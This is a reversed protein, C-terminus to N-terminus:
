WVERCDSEELPLKKVLIKWSVMEWALGWESANHFLFYMELPPLSVSIQLVKKAHKDMELQPQLLDLPVKKPSSPDQLLFEM